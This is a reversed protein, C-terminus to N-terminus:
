CFSQSNKSYECWGVGAYVSQIDGLAAIREFQNAIAIPSARRPVVVQM